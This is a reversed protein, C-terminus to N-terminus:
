ICGCFLVAWNGLFYMWIPHNRVERNVNLVSAPLPTGKINRLSFFPSVEMCFVLLECGMVFRCNNNAKKNVMVVIKVSHKPQRVRVM